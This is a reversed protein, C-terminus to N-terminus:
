NDSENWVWKESIEYDGQVLGLPNLSSKGLETNFLYNYRNRDKSNTLIQYTLTELVYEREVTYSQSAVECTVEIVLRVGKKSTLDSKACPVSAPDVGEPLMWYVCVTTKGPLGEVSDVTEGDKKNMNEDYAQKNNYYMLDFYRYASAKDHGASEQPDYYPWTKNDQLINFRIYKYLYSDFEPYRNEADNQYTLEDGLAKSLTNAAESCRMSAINKNQSAYLTYAILTLSFTFVILITMIVIAVIMTAGSDDRICGHRSKKESQYSTKIIMKNMRMDIM